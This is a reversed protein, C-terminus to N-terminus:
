VISGETSGQHGEAGGHANVEAEANFLMKVVKEHNCWSAAQLANSNRRRQANVEAVADLLMNVM